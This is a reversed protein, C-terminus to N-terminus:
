GAATQLGEHLASRGSRIHRPQYRGGLYEGRPSIADFTTATGFDIVILSCKFKDYAAVANVIRDAGVEMPNSYLIPM